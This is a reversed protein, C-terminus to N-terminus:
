PRRLGIRLRLLDRAKALERSKFEGMVLFAIIIVLGILLLKAFIFIGSTPWLYALAYALCCILTSRCLTGIPPFIRCIRHVALVAALAGVSAFLTTVLSAGIAGLRPILILHGAIALPLLPGILAFTWGYKGAATLIATAVSIIVLAVASFILLALLPAAPLFASGFILSVIESAAGAAMGAFPLLGIGVRIADRGLERASHGDGVYWIRSLTSLLLPSFSLAFLGPVLSLNQAAGYIGAQIATGGLMQLAILDLKDYLRMSLAFLSLPVLYSFLRRAPLPSCHFLSPRVFCRGVVLEVLSAGIIGLIAGSVSLGLEVFVVILLLRTIWRSASSFARQRFAGIGVLIDRHAHALSFIPIDLAFLRLHSELMQANLLMAIPTALFWLLLAAIGGTMLHIRVITTGVSRWDEAESIFKITTRSFVSTLSLEVWAILTGALTLLGYDEPGLRRTLFAATLLGTPLLLGDGM